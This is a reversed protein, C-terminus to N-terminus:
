DFCLTIPESDPSEFGSSTASVTFSLKQRDESQCAAFSFLEVEERQTSEIEDGDIKVHYTVQSTGDGADWELRQVRDQSDFVARLNRPAEPESWEDAPPVVVGVPDSSDSLRYARDRATVSVTVEGGPLIDFSATTGTTRRAVRGAPGGRVTTTYDLVGAASSSPEWQVTLSGPSESVQVDGPTTVPFEDPTTFHFPDSWDSRQWANDQAQVQLRYTQSRALFFTMSPETTFMWRGNLQVFYISIGADSSSPDWEVTVSSPGIDARFNSPTTPRDGQAYAPTGVTVAAMVVTMGAALSAMRSTRRLIM